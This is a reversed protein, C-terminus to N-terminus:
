LGPGCLRCSHHGVRALHCLRHQEAIRRSVVQRCRVLRRRCPLDQWCGDITLTAGSANYIGGCDKSSCNQIIVDRYPSSYDEILNVTGKNYIGGGQNNAQCDAIIVGQMELIAGACVYIGGGYEAHGGSITGVTNNHENGQVIKLTGSKLYIVQGETYNNFSSPDRSLTYGNMIITLERDGIDVMLRAATSYGAIPKLVIDAGLYIADYQPNDIAGVLQSHSFM